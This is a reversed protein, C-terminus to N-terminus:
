REMADHVADSRSDNSHDIVLRKGTSTHFFHDDEVMDKVVNLAVITESWLLIRREVATKRRPFDVYGAELYVSSETLDSLDRQIFACNIGLLIWARTRETASEVMKHIEEAEFM